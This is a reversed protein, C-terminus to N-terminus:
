PTGKRPQQIDAALQQWHAELHAELEDVTIQQREADLQASIARCRDTFDAVANFIRWAIHLLSALLLGPWVWGAFQAATVLANDVTSGADIALCFADFPKM